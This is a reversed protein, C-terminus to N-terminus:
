FYRDIINKVGRLVGGSRTIASHHSSDMSFGYKVLGVATSYIPNDIVERLGTIGTPTGIRVPLGTVRAALVDIGKLLAGGGTLVLGSGILNFHGESELDNRILQFIETMRAEIILCLKRHTRGPAHRYLAGPISLDSDDRALESLAKGERKKLEEAQPILLKMGLSIDNTVHDGGISLIRTHHVIEDRFFVYDTTGGGIDVLVVGAEQEEKRVVALSSALQQLVIDGVDLGAQRICNMIDQLASVRGTILHVQAELRIGQKGEPNLIGRHNDVSFAQPITHIIERDGPLAVTQAAKGARIMDKETVGVVANAILIVARSNFSEIHGGAIGAYVSSIEFECINEAKDVAARISEATQNVNIVEGKRLGHSPHIGVGLIRIDKNDAQEAVIVCIKTTGVDLGAIIKRKKTMKHKCSIRSIM